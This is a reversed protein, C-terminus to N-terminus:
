ETAGSRLGLRRALASGNEMLHAAAFIARRRAGALPVSIRVISRRETWLSNIMSHNEVACSDTWDIEDRALLRLNEIQLLVGPSFRAYDEDIATKFSFAGPPAILNVLMAVPKGDLRLALAELRGAEHAGLFADRFFAASAPDVALASGLRGKWGSAELALFSDCWARADGDAGLTDCVLTGLEALRASQRRYEKRKKTRVAAEYYARPSLNSALMARSRRHVVPSPRGLRAAAEALGLHVPGGEAVSNLHFFSRAWPAADLAELAEVWFDAERGARILPTGLFCQNHRWNRLFAVPIRGYPREVVLPLLGTLEGGEWVSLLRTPGPPSLHRAGAEFFWREAYPNPEAAELALRDWASHWSAPVADFPCTEVRPGAREAPAAPMIEGRRALM